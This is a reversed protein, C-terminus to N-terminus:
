TPEGMQKLAADLLGYANLTLDLTLMHFFLTDDLTTTSSIHKLIDKLYTGQIREKLLTALQKIHEDTLSLPYDTAAHSLFPSVYDQLTKEYLDLGQAASQLAEDVHETAGFHGFLLRKPNLLRIRRWSERMAPGDFQNPSTSPLVFPWDFLSTLPHPHVGDPDHKETHHVFSAELVGQYLIGVTDGTFVDATQPHFIALHHRAHGPTDLFKFANHNAFTIIEGDAPTIIREEPVPLIPHFFTEFAEKYVAKAGAILKEPHALHWAGRPHVIVKAHPIDKLLLGVGGAHDLHIHTLVIASIADPAIHLQKLGELLFPIGSSPGTDILVGAEPLVYVGTRYPMQLDHVDIMYVGKGLNYTRPPALASM